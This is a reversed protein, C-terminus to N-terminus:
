YDGKWNLSGCFPCGRTINSGFYHYVEKPNGTSDNEMCIHEHPIGRILVKTPLDTDKSAGLHDWSPYSNVHADSTDSVEYGSLMTSDKAPVGRTGLTPGREDRDVNCPHGCNWCRFWKNEDDGYGEM